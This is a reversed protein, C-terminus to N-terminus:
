NSIRNEIGLEDSFFEYMVDCKEMREQPSMEKWGEYFGTESIKDSIKDVHNDIKEGDMVSIHDLERESPLDINDENEPIGEFYDQLTDEIPFAEGEIVSKGSETETLNEM